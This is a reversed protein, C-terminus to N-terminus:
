NIKTVKLTTKLYAQKETNQISCILSLFTLVRVSFQARAWMCESQESQSPRCHGDFYKLKTETHRDEPSRKLKQYSNESEKGKNETIQVKTSEKGCPRNQISPLGLSLTAQSDQSSLYLVCFPIGSGWSYIFTLCWCKRWFKSFFITSIILLLEPTCCGMSPLSVALRTDM